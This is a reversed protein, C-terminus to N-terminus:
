FGVSTSHVSVPSSMDMADHQVTSAYAKRLYNTLEPDRMKPHRLERLCYICFKGSEPRVPTPSELLSCQIVPSENSGPQAEARKLEELPSEILREPSQPPSSSSLM